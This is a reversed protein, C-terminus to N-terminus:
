VVTPYDRLLQQLNLKSTNLYKVANYSYALTSYKTDVVLTYIVPENCPRRKNLLLSVHQLTDENEPIRTEMVCNM